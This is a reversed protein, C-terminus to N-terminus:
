QRDVDKLLVRSLLATLKKEGQLLKQPVARHLSQIHDSGGSHAQLCKRNPDKPQHTESENSWWLKHQTPNTLNTDARGGGGKGM